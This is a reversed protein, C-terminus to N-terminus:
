SPTANAVPVAFARCWILVTWEGSELDTGPPVSYYQTGQNGRLGDLFVGEDGPSERGAGPVVYVRYDPGPEVDIGELGVLYSGDPQRYVVAAGSADHDIGSLTGAQLRVPAAVTTTVPDRGAGPAANPKAIAAPIAEVVKKDVISPLILAIVLAVALASLAGVRIWGNRIVRPLVLRSLVLWGAVIGMTVAIAQTGSFLDRVANPRIAAMVGFSALLAAPPILEIWRPPERSDAPLSM